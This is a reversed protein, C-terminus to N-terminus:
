RGGRPRRLRDHQLESALDAYSPRPEPQAVRNCLLCALEISPRGGRTETAQPMLNGGCYSCRSAPHPRIGDARGVTM